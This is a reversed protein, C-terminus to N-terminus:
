GFSNQKSPNFTKQTELAMVAMLWNAGEYKEQPLGINKAIQVVKKRFACDVKRGWILDYKKQTTINPSFFTLKFM